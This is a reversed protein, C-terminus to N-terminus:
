ILYSRGTWKLKWMWLRYFILVTDLTETM